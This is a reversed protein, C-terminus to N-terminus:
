GKNREMKLPRIAKICQLEEKEGSLRKGYTKHREQPKFFNEQLTFMTHIEM